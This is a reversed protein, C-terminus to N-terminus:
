TVSRYKSVKKKDAATLEDFTYPSKKKPKAPPVIARPRSMCAYRLEDGAHDEGETDLDEPDTEDHQLGPLTRILETGTSMVYWLPGDEDNEGRLRQRVQNWGAVRSNDAPRNPVGYRRLQEALSPGGNEIFMSPDVATFAYKEDKSRQVIGAAVKEVTMKLGINSTGQSKDIGYWERYRVLSGAPLKVMDGGMNQVVPWESTVIAYWGISFPKASGWDMARFKTSSVPVTFPHLVHRDYEFEPFYAGAIVDWDGNLMARVLQPSGLGSIRDAYDPDDREMYPNDRLKAQIYQRRMGGEEKPADWVSGPEHGTDIFSKKVWLHGVNGPNSSCLIRPFCGAIPLWWKGGKGDPLEIGAPLTLGVMRVRFRLYRYITETFTTLEDIVLVHIEAGHYNYKHKEDKCHCLKIKSGNWFRVEDQVIVVLGVSTWASLMSRFGQPGDMHNKLLDDMLRRFIYCQLGPIWMCWFILAVRM